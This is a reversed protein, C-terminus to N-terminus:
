LLGDEKDYADSVTVLVRFVNLEAVGSTAVATVVGVAHRDIAPGCVTNDGVVGNTVCWSVDSETESREFAEGVQSVAPYLVRSSLPRQKRM